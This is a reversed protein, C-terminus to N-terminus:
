YNGTIGQMTLLGRMAPAMIRPLASRESNEWKQPRRADSQDPRPPCDFPAYRGPASRHPEDEPDPMAADIPRAM